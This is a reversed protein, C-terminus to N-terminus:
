QTCSKLLASLASVGINNMRAINRAPLEEIDAYSSIAQALSEERLIHLIPFPARNTYNEADEPMTGAFQYDPHFSAIQYVGELDMDRLLGDTLDLFQNYRRFDQLVHPHILLSTEITNDSDLLTLEHKLSALLDTESCAQSYSFRLTQQDVVQRAFPCLSLDVVMQQVWSKTAAIVANESLMDVM